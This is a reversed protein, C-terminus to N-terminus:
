RITSMTEDKAASLLVKTTVCCFQTDYQHFKRINNSTNQKNNNNNRVKRLPM